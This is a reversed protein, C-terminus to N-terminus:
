TKKRCMRFPQKQVGFVNFCGGKFNQEKGVGGGGVGRKGGERRFSGQADGGKKFVAFCGLKEVREVWGGV